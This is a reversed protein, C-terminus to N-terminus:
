NSVRRSSLLPLGSAPDSLAEEAEFTDKSAYLAVVPETAYRSLKQLTESYKDSHFLSGLAELDSKKSGLTVALVEALYDALVVPNFASIMTGTPVPNSPGSNAPVLVPGDM